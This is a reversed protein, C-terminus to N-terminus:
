GVIFAQGPFRIAAQRMSRAPGRYKLSTQKIATNVLRQVPQTAALLPDLATETRNKEEKKGRFKV